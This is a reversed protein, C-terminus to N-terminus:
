MLAMDQKIDEEGPSYLVSHLVSMEQNSCQLVVCCLPRTTCDEHVIERGEQQRKYWTHCAVQGNPPSLLKKITSLFLTSDTGPAQTHIEPESSRLNLERYGYARLCKSPNRWYIVNLLSVYEVHSHSLCAMCCAYPFLSICFTPRFIQLSRVV